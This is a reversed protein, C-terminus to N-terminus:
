ISHNRPITLVWIHRSLVRFDYTLLRGMISGQFWIYISNIMFNCHLRKVCLNSKWSVVYDERACIQRGPCWMTGGLCIRRRVCLITGLVYTQRGLCLMTKRCSPRDGSKPITIKFCFSFFQLSWIKPIGSTLVNFYILVLLVMVIM